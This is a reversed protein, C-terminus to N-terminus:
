VEEVHTGPFLGIRGELDGKCWQDRRREHLVIIDGQKLTLEDSHRANYPYIVKVCKVPKSQYPETSQTMLVPYAARTTAM